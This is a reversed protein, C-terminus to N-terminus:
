QQIGGEYGDSPTDSLENGAAFAFSRSRTRQTYRRFDEDKNIMTEQVNVLPLMRCPLDGIKCSLVFATERCKELYSQLGRTKQM